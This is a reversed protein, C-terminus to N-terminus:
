PSPKPQKDVRKEDTEREKQEEDCGLFYENELLCLGGVNWEVRQM